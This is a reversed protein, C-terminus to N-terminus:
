CRDPSPGKLDTAVRARDRCRRLVTCVGGDAFYFTVGRESQMDIVAVPSQRPLAAVEKAWAKAEAESDVALLIRDSGSARGLIWYRAGEHTAM